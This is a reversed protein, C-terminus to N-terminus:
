LRLLEVRYSPEYASTPTTPVIAFWVVRRWLNTDRTFLSAFANSNEILPSLLFEREGIGRVFRFSQETGDDLGVRIRLPPVKYLLSAVRGGSTLDITFRAFMLHDGASVRIKEGLQARRTLTRTLMAASPMARRTLLVNEGLRGALSYNTLLIPWSMGDQLSPLRRDITYVDFLVAPPPSSRLRNANLELLRPTYAAYSVFLPRPQYTFGRHGMIGNPMPYLDARLDPPPVPTVAIAQAHVR